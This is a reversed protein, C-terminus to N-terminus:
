ELSSIRDSISSNASKPMLVIANNGLISLSKFSIEPESANFSSLKIQLMTLCIFSRKGLNTM